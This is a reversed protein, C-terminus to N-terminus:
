EERLELCQLADKNLIAGEVLTSAIACAANSTVKKYGFHALIKDADKIKSTKGIATESIFRAQGNNAENAREYADIKDDISDADVHSTSELERCIM